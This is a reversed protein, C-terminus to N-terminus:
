NQYCKCMTIIWWHMGIERKMYLACLMNKNQIIIPLNLLFSFMYCTPDRSMSFDEFGRQRKNVRRTFAKQNEIFLYLNRMFSKSLHMLLLITLHMYQLAGIKKIQSLLYFNSFRNSKIYYCEYYIIVSMTYLLVWYSCM